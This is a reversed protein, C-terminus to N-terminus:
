FSSLWLEPYMTLARHISTLQILYQRTITEFTTSTHPPSPNCVSFVNLTLAVRPLGTQNALHIDQNSFYLESSDLPHGRMLPGNVGAKNRLNTPPPPHSAPPRSTM